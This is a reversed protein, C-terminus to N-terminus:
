RCWGMAVGGVAVGGVAVGRLFLPFLVTLFGICFGCHMCVFLFAFAPKMCSTQSVLCEFSTQSENIRREM